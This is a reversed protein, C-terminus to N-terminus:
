KAVLKVTGPFLCEVTEGKEVRCANVDISIELPSVDGPTRQVNAVIVATPEYIRNTTKRETKAKGEPYKVDVKVKDKAKITVVTRNEAYDENGVPNAYIYWGKDIALTITVTQKGDKDPPTATASAKVKSDSKAGADAHLMLPGTLAAVFCGILLFRM